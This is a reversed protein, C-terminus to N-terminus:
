ASWTRRASKRRRRLAGATRAGGHERRPPRPLRRPFDRVSAVDDRAAKRSRTSTTASKRRGAGQHADATGGDLKILKFTDIKQPKNDESCTSTRRGASRRGPQREQGLHHRRRPRLQDRRPLHSAATAPDRGGQPQQAAASFGTQAPNASARNSLPARRAWRSFSRPAPPSHIECGCARIKSASRPLSSRFAVYVASRDRRRGQGDARDRLRGRGLSGLPLRLEPM